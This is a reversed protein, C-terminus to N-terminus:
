LAPRALEASRLVGCPRLAALSRKTRYGGPLPCLPVRRVRIGLSRVNGASLPPLLFRPVHARHGRGGGCDDHATGYIALPTAEHSPGWTAKSSFTTELELTGPGAEGWTRIERRAGPGARAPSVDIRAM